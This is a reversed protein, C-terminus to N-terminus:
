IEEEIVEDNFNYENNIVNLLEDVKAEKELIELKLKKIEEKINNIEINNEQMIVKEEKM